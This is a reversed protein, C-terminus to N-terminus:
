PVEESKPDRMMLGPVAQKANVGGFLVDAVAKTIPMEVKHTQALIVAAKVTYEGEVVMGVEKLAEQPSHGKGILNGYQWNRSHRSMCTVVLDGMGTLGYFTQTEAGMKTGLRIIEMLGRTILAAKANDGHGLGDSIGCAIAIVNKLAGGLEVGKVDTQTYVRFRPTSFIEQIQLSLAENDSAATVVTPLGRSVEEAHSPGSLVVLKNDSQAGLEDQAVDTMLKLTEQEIGKTCIVFPQGQYGSQAVLRCTERMHAAPVVCVVIRAEALMPAMETSFELDAPIEMEPLRPHRRKDRLEKVVQNSYEWVRVPNGQQHLLKALSIGWTGASLVTINMAMFAHPNFFYDTM